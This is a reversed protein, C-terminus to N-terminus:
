NVKHATTYDGGSIVSLRSAACVVCVCVVIGVHASRLEVCLSQTDPLRSFVSVNNQQNKLGLALVFRGDEAQIYYDGQRAM